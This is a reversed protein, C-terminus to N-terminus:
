PNPAHKHPGKCSYSQAEDVVQNNPIVVGNVRRLIGEFFTYHTAHCSRYRIITVVDLLAGSSSGWGGDDCVPRFTDGREYRPDFVVIRDEFAGFRTSGVTYRYWYCKSVDM